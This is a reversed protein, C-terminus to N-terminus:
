APRIVTCCFLLDIWGFRGDIGLIQCDPVYDIQARVLHGRLIQVFEGHLPIRLPEVDVLLKRLLTVEAANDGAADM